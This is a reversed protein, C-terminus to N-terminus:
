PLMVHCAYDHQITACSVAGAAVSLTAAQTIFCNFHPKLSHCFLGRGDMYLKIGRLWCHSLIWLLINVTKNRICSMVRACFWRDTNNNNSSILNNHYCNNNTLLTKTQTIRETQKGAPNSLWDTLWDTLSDTFWDFFPTSSNDHFKQSCYVMPCLVISEIKAHYPSLDPDLFNEECLGKRVDTADDRHISM